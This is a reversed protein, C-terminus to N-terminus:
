DVLSYVYACANGHLIISYNLKSYLVLLFIHMGMIDKNITM